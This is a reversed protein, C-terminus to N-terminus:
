QVKCDGDFDMGGDMGGAGYSFRGTKKDLVLITSGVGVVYFAVDLRDQNQQAKCTGNPFRSRSCVPSTDQLQDTPKGNYSITVDDYRMATRTLTPDQPIVVLMTAHRTPFRGIPYQQQNLLGTCILVQDPVKTAVTPPAPKTQPATQLASACATLSLLLPTLLVVTSPKM